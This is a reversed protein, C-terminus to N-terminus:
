RGRGARLRELLGNLSQSQLREYNIRFLWTAHNADAATRIQFLV